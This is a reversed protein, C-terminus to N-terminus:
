EALWRSEAASWVETTAEDAQFRQEALDGVMPPVQLAAEMAMAM